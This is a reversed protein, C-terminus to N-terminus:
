QPIVALFMMGTVLPINIHSFDFTDSYFTPELDSFMNTQGDIFILTGNIKEAYLYHSNDRILDEMLGVGVVFRTGDAYETMQRYAESLRINGQDVPYWPSGELTDLRYESDESKLDLYHSIYTIQDAVPQVYRSWFFYDRNRLRASADAEVLHTPQRTALGVANLSCNNLKNASNDTVVATNIIGGIKACIAKGHDYEAPYRQKFQGNHIAVATTLTDLTNGDIANKDEFWSYHKTHRM